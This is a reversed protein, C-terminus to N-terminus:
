LEISNKTELLSCNYRKEFRSVNLSFNNTLNFYIKKIIPIKSVFIEIFKPMRIYVVRIEM